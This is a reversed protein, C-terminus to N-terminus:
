VIFPSVYKLPRTKYTHTHTHTQQTRAHIHPKEYIYYIHMDIYRTLRAKFKEREPVFRYYIVTFDM